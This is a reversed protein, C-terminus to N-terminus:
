QGVGELICHMGGWLVALRGLAGGKVSGECGMGVSGIVGLGLCGLGGEM